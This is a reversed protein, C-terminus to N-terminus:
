AQSKIEFKYTKNLTMNDSFIRFLYFTPIKTDDEYDFKITTAKSKGSVMDPNKQKTFCKTNLVQSDQDLIIICIQNTKDDIGIKENSWNLDLRHTIPNLHWRKNDIPLNVGRKVDPHIKNNILDIGLIEKVDFLDRSLETNQYKQFDLSDSHITVNSLELISQLSKFDNSYYCIAKNLKYLNYGLLFSHITLDTIESNFFINDSYKYRINWSGKGFLFSGNIISHQNPKVINKWNNIPLREVSIMGNLIRNPISYHPTPSNKDKGPYFITSSLLAMDDSISNWDATIKLDWDKIFHYGPEIQLFYDENSYLEQAKQRGYGIGKFETNKTDFFKFRPDDRFESILDINSHNHIGFRLRDKNAANLLCNRVTDLIESNNFSYIQIFITSKKDSYPFWNNLLEKRKGCGCDEDDTIQNVINTIGVSNLFKEVSDGLGKSM